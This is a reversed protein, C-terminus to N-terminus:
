CTNSLLFLIYTYLVRSLTDITRRFRDKGVGELEERNDEKPETGRGGIKTGYGHQKIALVDAPHRCRHAVTIRQGRDFSYIAM